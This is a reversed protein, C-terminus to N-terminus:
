EDQVIKAGIQNYLSQYSKEQILQSRIRPFSFPVKTSFSIEKVTKNYVYVTEGLFLAEELDHTVYIITSKYEQWLEQLLQQLRCKQPFDLSSFPEDLIIFRPNFILARALAAKQQMGGSLQHPMHNSFSSLELRRLWFHIENVKEPYCFKLNEMLSLWPLLNSKQFVFGPDHTIHSIIKGSYNNYLKGISRLTLTKGSGSPGTLVCFEGEQIKLNTPNLIIQNEFTISFNELEVAIKKM